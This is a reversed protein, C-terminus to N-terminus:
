WYKQRAMFQGTPPPGPEATSTYTVNDYDSIQTGGGYDNVQMAIKVTNGCDGGGGPVQNLVSELEVNDTDYLYYSIIGQATRECRIRYWTNNEPVTDFNFVGGEAGYRIRGLRIEFHMLSAAGSDQSYFYTRGNIDAVRIWAYYNGTAENLDTNELAGYDNDLEGVATFRCGYNGEKKADLSAAFTGGGGDIFSWRNTTGDEFGDYTM